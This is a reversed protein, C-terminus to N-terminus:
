PKAPKTTPPPKSEDGMPHDWHTTLVFDEHRYVWLPDIGLVVYRVRLEEAPETLSLRVSYCRPGDGPAEGLITFRKLHQGPKRHRDVFQVGVAGSRISSEQGKKWADLAAELAQRAAPEDPVYRKQPRGQCGVGALVGVVLWLRWRRM